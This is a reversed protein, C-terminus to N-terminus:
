KSVVRKWEVAELIYRKAAEKLDTGPPVPIGEKVPAGPEQIFVPLDARLTVTGTVEVLEGKGDGHYLGIPWSNGPLDAYIGSGEFSVFAGVTRNIAMGTVTVRKGLDQDWNRSGRKESSGASSSNPTTNQDPLASNSRCGAFAITLAAIIVLSGSMSTSSRFRSRAFATRKARLTNIM